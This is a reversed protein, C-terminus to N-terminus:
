LKLHESSREPQCQPDALSVQLSLSPLPLEGECLGKLSFGEAHQLRESRSQQVSDALVEKDMEGPRPPSLIKYLCHKGSCRPHAHREPAYRVSLRATLRETKWASNCCAGHERVLQVGVLFAKDASAM